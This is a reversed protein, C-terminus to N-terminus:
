DSGKKKDLVEETIKILKVLKDSASPYEEGDLIQQRCEKLIDLTIRSFEQGFKRGEKKADLYEIETESIWEDYFELPPIYVVENMYDGYHKGENAPDEIWDNFGIVGEDFKSM